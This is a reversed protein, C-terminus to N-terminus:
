EGPNIKESISGLNEILEDVSKKVANLSFDLNVQATRVREGAARIDAAASDISGGATELAKSATQKAGSVLTDSYKMAEQILVGSSEGSFADYGSRNIQESPQSLKAELEEKERGLAELRENLSRIKEKLEENESKLASFDDGSVSGACEASKERLEDALAVNESQLKEIYSLVDERKFGGFVSKKLIRDSNM